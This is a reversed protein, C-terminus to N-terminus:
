PTKEVLLELADAEIEGGKYPGDEDVDMQPEDFWVWYFEILSQAGKVYRHCGNWPAQDQVLQRATEPPLDVTGVAGQAWHYNPSIRVRDGPSFMMM